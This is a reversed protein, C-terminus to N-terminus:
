KPLATIYAVSPETKLVMMHNQNFCLKKTQALANALVKMKAGIPM